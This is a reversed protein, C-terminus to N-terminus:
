PNFYYRKQYPENISGNGQDSPNPLEILDKEDIFPGYKASDGDYYPSHELYDYVVPFSTNASINSSRDADNRVYEELISESIKKDILPEFDKQNTIFPGHGLDKMM